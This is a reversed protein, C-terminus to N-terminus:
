FLINRTLEIKMELLQESLLLFVKDIIEGRYIRQNVQVWEGVFIWRKRKCLYWSLSYNVTTNSMKHYHSILASYRKVSGVEKGIIPRSMQSFNGIMSFLCKGSIMLSGSLVKWQKIKIKSNSRILKQWGKM